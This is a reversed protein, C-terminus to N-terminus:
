GRNEAEKEFGFSKKASSKLHRYLTSSLSSGHKLVIRVLKGKTAVADNGNIKGIVNSAEDVKGQNILYVPSEPCYFSGLFAM